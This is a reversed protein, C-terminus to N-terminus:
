CLASGVTLVICIFCVVCQLHWLPCLRLGAPTTIGARGRLALNLLNADSSASALLNAEDFTLVEDRIMLEVLYRLQWTANPDCDSSAVPTAREDLRESLITKAWARDQRQAADGCGCESMVAHRTSRLITTAIAHGVGGHRRVELWLQGAM